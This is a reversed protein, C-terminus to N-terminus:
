IVKMQICLAIKGEKLDSRHPIIDSFKEGSLSFSTPITYSVGIKMVPGALFDLMIRHHFKGNYLADFFGNVGDDGNPRSGTLYTIRPGTTLGFKLYSFMEVSFGMTFIGSFLLSSSDLVSIDGAIAIQFNSLNGRMELGVAVRDLSFKDPSDDDVVETAANYSINVGLDLSSDMAVAPMVLMTLVAFLMLTRKM